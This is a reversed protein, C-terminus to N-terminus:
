VPQNVGSFKILDVSHSIVPVASPLNPTFGGSVNLFSTADRKLIRIFTDAVIKAGVPGLQNGDRLVKSERLIYYWLPTQKLFFAARSTLIAVEDAPLGDTLQATTLPVIGFSKAMGQGSPLGLALGRRLNRSACTNGNNRKWWSHKELGNALVSDIKRAKNNIPVPM